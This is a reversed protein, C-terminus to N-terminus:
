ASQLGPQPLFPLQLLPANIRKVLPSKSLQLALAKTIRSDRLQHPLVLLGNTLLSDLRVYPRNELANVSTSCFKRGRCRVHIRGIVFFALRQRGVTFFDHNEATARITDALADLKIIATHM